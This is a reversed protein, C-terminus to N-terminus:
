ASTASTLRRRELWLMMIGTIMAYVLPGLVIGTWTLGFLTSSGVLLWAAIWGVSAAAVNVALWLALNPAPSPLAPWLALGLVLGLIPTMIVMMLTDPGQALARGAGSIQFEYLLAVFAGLGAGIGWGFLSRVIWRGRAERSWPLVFSQGIGVCVGTVVGVAAVSLALTFPAVWPFASTLIYALIGIFVAIGFGSVAGGVTGLSSVMGWLLCFRAGRRCDKVTQSQVLM